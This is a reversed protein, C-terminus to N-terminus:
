EVEQATAGPEGDRNSRNHPAGVPSVRRTRGDYDSDLFWAAVKDARTPVISNEIPNYIDVGEM